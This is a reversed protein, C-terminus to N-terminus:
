AIDFIFDQGGEKKNKYKEKNLKSQKVAHVGLQMIQKHLTRTIYGKKTRYIQMDMFKTSENKNQKKREKKLTKICIIAQLFFAYVM